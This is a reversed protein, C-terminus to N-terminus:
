ECGHSLRLTGGRSYPAHYQIWVLLLFKGGNGPEYFLLSVFNLNNFKQLADKLKKHLATQNSKAWDV